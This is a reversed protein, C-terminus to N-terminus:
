ATPDAHADTGTRGRGPQVRELARQREPRWVPQRPPDEDVAVTLTEDVLVGVGPADPIMGEALVVAEDVHDGVVRDVFRVHDAQPDAVGRRGRLLQGGVEVYRRVRQRARHALVVLG